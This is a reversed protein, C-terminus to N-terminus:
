FEINRKSEVAQALDEHEFVVIGGRDSFEKLIEMLPITIDGEAGLACAYDRFIGFETKGTTHIIDVTPDLQMILDRIFYYIEQKVADDLVMKYTGDEQKI